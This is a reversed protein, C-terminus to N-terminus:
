CTTEPRPLAVAEVAAADGGDLWGDVDIRAHARRAPRPASRHSSGISRFGVLEALDRAPELPVGCGPCPDGILDSPVGPEYHRTRCNMCKFHPM